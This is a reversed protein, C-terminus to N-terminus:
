VAEAIFSALDIARGNTGEDRGASFFTELVLAAAGRAWKTDDWQDVVLDVGALPPFLHRELAARLPPEVHRRARMGEGSVIVLGPSLVNVLGAMAVGLREGAEDLIAHAQPNGADARETLTTVGEAGTIVGAARGARVLAPDAVLAELCGRRGCECIPGAPDVPVHGFEGAGGLRGRVLQGGIVIACGVGRGLTVTVFDPVDRGKGYLQEAFALTNVDNDVLVPVGVRQALRDAIPAERWGLIPSDVCVGRGADVVGPMGVGVGLMRPSAAGRLESVLRAVSEVTIDFTHSILPEVRSELVNGELDVLVVALHDVALKVGIVTAATPNLALLTPKRGGTSPAQAVSQILGISALEGAISTVAAGSLGIRRTIGVRAIPGERKILNLVASRNLERILSKSGTPYLLTGGSDTM